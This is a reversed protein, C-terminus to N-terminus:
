GQDHTCSKLLKTIFFTCLSRGGKWNVENAGVHIYISFLHQQQLVHAGSKAGCSHQLHELLGPECDAAQLAAMPLLGAAGSFWVEWTKEHYLVGRTLFM